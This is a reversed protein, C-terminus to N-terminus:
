DVWKIWPGASRQVQDLGQVHQQLIVLIASSSNIAQLQAALPHTFLGTTFLRRSAIQFDVLFCALRRSDFSQSVVTVERTSTRGMVHGESWPVPRGDDLKQLLV